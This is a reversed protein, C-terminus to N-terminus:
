WRGRTGHCSGFQRIFWGIWSCSLRVSTVGVWALRFAPGSPCCCSRYADVHDKYIRPTLKEQVYAQYRAYAVRNDPLEWKKMRAAEGKLTAPTAALRDQLFKRVCNATPENPTESCACTANNVYVSPLWWSNARYPSCSTPPLGAAPVCNPDVSPREDGKEQGEKRAARESLVDQPWRDIRAEPGAQQVTHALEHALLRDGSPTGPKYEGASFIIDRGVTFARANVSRALDHAGADNHVRVSSFDSGFRPEFFDRAAGSLPAGGGQLSDIRSELSPTVEPTKREVQEAQLVEEEEPKKREVVPSIEVPKRQM